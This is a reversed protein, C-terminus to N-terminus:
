GGGRGAGKRVKAKKKSKKRKTKRVDIPLTNLIAVPIRVGRMSDVLRSVAAEAPVIQAARSFYSIRSERAVTAGFTASVREREVRAAPNLSGAYCIPVIVNGSTQGPDGVVIALHGHNSGLEASTMGAIVIKEDQAAKIAGAHSTGVSMWDGSSRLEEVIANANMDPGTFLDPEFFAACVAKVFKNCDDSNSKFEIACQAIVQESISMLDQQRQVDVVIKLAYQRASPLAETAV